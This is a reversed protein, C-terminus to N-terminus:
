HHRVVRDWLNKAAKEGKEILHVAKEVVPKAEGVQEKVQALQKQIGCSFRVFFSADTHLRQKVNYSETSLTGSASLTVNLLVTTSSTCYFCVSAFNGTHPLGQDSARLYNCSDLLVGNGDRNLKLCGKTPISLSLTGASAPSTSYTVSYVWENGFGYPYDVVATFVLTACNASPPLTFASQPSRLAPHVGDIPDYLEAGGPGVISFPMTASEKLAASKKAVTGRPVDFSSAHKNDDCAFMINWELPMHDIKTAPFQSALQITAHATAVGAGSCVFCASVTTWSTNFIQGAPKNIQLEGGTSTVKIAYNVYLLYPSAYQDLVQAEFEGCTANQPAVLPQEPDLLIPQSGSQPDYLSFGLPGTIAIPALSAGALGIM